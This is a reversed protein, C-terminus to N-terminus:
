LAHTEPHWWIGVKSAECCISYQRFAMSLRSTPCSIYVMGAWPRKLAGICRMVLCQAVEAGPWNHPPSRPEPHLPPQGGSSPGPPSRRHRPGRPRHQCPQAAAQGAPAGSGALYTAKIPMKYSVLSNVGLWKIRCCSQTGKPIDFKPFKLVLTRQAARADVIARQVAFHPRFM